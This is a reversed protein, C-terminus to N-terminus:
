PEPFPANYHHRRRNTDGKERDGNECSKGESFGKKVGSRCCPYCVGGGLGAVEGRGVGCVM